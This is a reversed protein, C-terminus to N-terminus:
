RIVRGKWVQGRGSLARWMSAAMVSAIFAGAVPGALATWIRGGIARDRLSRVVINSAANLSCWVILDRESRVLPRRLATVGLFALVPLPVVLMATAAVIFVTAAVPSRGTGEAFGRYMRVRVFEHGDLLRVSFGFAKLREALARDEAIEGRVSAHGGVTWYAERRILVFGGWVLGVHSRPDHVLVLPHGSMVVAAMAPMIIEELVDGCELTATLSCADAGFELSADLAAAVTQPTMRMDADSFLLWDGGAILAGRYAAATKGVWGASPAGRVIRVRADDRAAVEALRATADDSEDDSVIIECVCPDQARACDLWAKVNREENRM